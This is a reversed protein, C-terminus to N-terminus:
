NIASTNLLLRQLTSDDL